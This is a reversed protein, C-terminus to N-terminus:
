VNHVYMQSNSPFINRRVNIDFSGKRGARLRRCIRCMVWMGVLVLGLLLLGVFAFFFGFVLSYPMSTPPWYPIPTPDCSTSTPTAGIECFGELCFGCLRPNEPGLCGAGEMCSVHCSAGDSVFLTFM